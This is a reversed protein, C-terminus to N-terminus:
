YFVFRLSSLRADHSIDCRSLLFMFIKSSDRRVRMAESSKMFSLGNTKWARGEVQAVPEYQVVAKPAGASDADALIFIM